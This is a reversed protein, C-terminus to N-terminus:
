KSLPMTKVNTERGLRPECNAKYVGNIQFM